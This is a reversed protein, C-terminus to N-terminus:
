LTKYALDPSNASSPTLLSAELTPSIEQTIETADVQDALKERAPNGGWTIGQGVTSGKMVFSDALITTDSEIKTGYHVFAGVGFNCGSGVSVHDSKFTCHDGVSVLEPEPFGAGDDFFMKGIKMGRLRLFFSMM